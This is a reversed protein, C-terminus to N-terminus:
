TSVCQITLQVQLPINLAPQPLRPIKDFPHRSKLLLPRRYKVGSIMQGRWMQRLGPQTCPKQLPLIQMDLDYPNEEFHFPKPTKIHYCATLIVQM